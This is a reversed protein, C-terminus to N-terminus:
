LPIVRMGSGTSTEGGTKLGAQSEDLRANRMIRKTDTYQCINLTSRTELITIVGRSLESVISETWNLETVWNHGVRQSGMFRLMGPM